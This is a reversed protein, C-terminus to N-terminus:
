GYDEVKWFYIIFLAVGLVISTDALNFVPWIRFDLFDIVYGWRLRDVINGVAGGIILGLPLDPFPARHYYRYIILSIIIIINIIIFLNNHGSLLGFGAGSNQVYTMHFVDEIVPISENIKFHETILNKVWQDIIIIFCIILYLMSKVGTNM